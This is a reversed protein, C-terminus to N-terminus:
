EDEWDEENEFEDVDGIHRSNIYDKSFIGYIFKSIGMEKNGYYMTSSIYLQNEARTM